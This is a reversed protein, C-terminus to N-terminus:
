DAYNKCSSEFQRQWEGISDKSYDEGKIQFAVREYMVDTRIIYKTGKQPATGEHLIDQGQLVIRGIKPTVILQHDKVSSLKESDRKYRCHIGKHDPWYGTVGEIFDPFGNLYILLTLFSHQLYKVGNRVVYRLMKYDLHEPFVDGKDYKYTRIRDCLGIATWESGEPKGTNKRHHPSPGLFVPNDPVHIAVKKWLEISFETNTYVCFKNTRPDERGTRGHGGGSVPSMKWGKKDALAILNICEEKNLIDDVVLIGRDFNDEAM